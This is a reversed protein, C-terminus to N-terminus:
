PGNGIALLGNAESLNGNIHVLFTDRQTRQSRLPTSFGNHM